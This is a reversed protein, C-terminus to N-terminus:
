DQGMSKGSNIKVGQAIKITATCVTLVTDSSCETTGHMNASQLFHM